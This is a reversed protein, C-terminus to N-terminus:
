VGEVRNRKSVFYNDVVYDTKYDAELPLGTDPDIIEIEGNEVKEKFDALKHEFENMLTSAEYHREDQSMLRSTSYNALLHIYERPILEVIDVDDVLYPINELQPLVQIVRDIGENIFMTIDSKRFITENFDRAHARVINHLSELNM